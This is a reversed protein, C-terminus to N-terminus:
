WRSGLAVRLTAVKGPDFGLGLDEDLAVLFGLRTCSGKNVPEVGIFPEVALQAQDDASLPMAMQLRVGGGFNGGRLEIENGSEIVLKTDGTDGTPFAVTAGLDSRLYLLKAFRAEAGFRFRLPVHQLLLRHTDFYGRAPFIAAAALKTDENPNIVPISGSVGGFLVLSPLLEHAYHLGLTPNGIVFADHEGENTITEGLQDTTQPGSVDGYGLPMEVDLHLGAVLKFQGVATIGIGLREAEVPGTPLEVQYSNSLVDVEFGFRGGKSKAWQDPPAPSDRRQALAPAAASLVLVLAGLSAIRM